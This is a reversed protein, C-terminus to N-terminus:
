TNRCSQCCRKRFQPLLCLQLQGVKQCYRSSDQCRGAPACPQLHCRQWSPPRPRWTCQHEKAAKGSGLHACTVQRSQFGHGGCTATCPTWPGLRWQPACARSSCNRQVGPRPLGGCTQEPVKPEPTGATSTATSPPWVAGWARVGV